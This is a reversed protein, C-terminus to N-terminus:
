RWRKLIKKIRRKHKKDLEFEKSIYADMVLKAVMRSMNTDNAVSLLRLALREEDSLLLHTHKQM